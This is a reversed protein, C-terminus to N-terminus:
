TARSPHSPFSARAAMRRSKGARMPLDRDPVVNVSIQDPSRIRYAPEGGEGTLLDVIEWEGAWVLGPFRNETFAVFVQQGRVTLSRWM